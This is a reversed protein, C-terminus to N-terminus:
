FFVLFLFIFIFISLGSLVRVVTLLLPIEISFCNQWCYDLIFVYLSGKMLNVCSEGDNWKGFGFHECPCESALCVCLQVYVHM